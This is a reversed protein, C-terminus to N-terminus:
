KLKFNLLNKIETSYEFPLKKIIDSCFGSVIFSIAEDYTLGRQNLYYLQDEYIKSIKAEHNIMASNNFVQITPLAIIKSTKNLILSNCDTINIANLSNPFVKVLGRYISTSFGDSISRSLIKSKTLSGIHIMKTGTDAQQFKNTLSVSYFEGHSKEGLLICSPYKWTISSGTELQVWSIFSNKGSCLGRKTVFNYIGGNGLKNGSYWNQITSYHACANEFAIIEVVAAHLQNSVHSTATCGEMYNVTSNKEVIILTREFQGMKKNNIRFYSSLNLPSKTNQPIYCFSGDSFICSNLAAFYNDGSNVVKGLYCEILYSFDKLSESLSSFIIGYKALKEKNTTKISLSDLIIDIANANNNKSHVKLGLKKFTNLIIKKVKFNFVNKTSAYSFFKIKNYDILNLYLESWNPTKFKKWKEYADLRFCKLFLPDQKIASLLNIVKFSIGYPFDNESIKTNFSYSLKNNIETKRKIHNIHHINKNM